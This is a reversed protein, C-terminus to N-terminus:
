RELVGLVAFPLCVDERGDDSSINAPNYAASIEVIIDVESKVIGPHRWNANADAQQEVNGEDLWLVELVHALAGGAGIFVIGVVVVLVKKCAGSVISLCLVASLVHLLLWAHHQGLWDGGLRDAILRGALNGISVHWWALDGDLLWALHRVLLLDVVSRWSALGQPGVISISM